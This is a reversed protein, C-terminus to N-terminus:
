SSTRRRDPYVFTVDGSDPTSIELMEGDGACTVARRDVLGRAIKRATIM